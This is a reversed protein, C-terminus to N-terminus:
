ISSTPELYCPAIISFATNLLKECTTRISVRGDDYLFTTTIYADDGIGVSLPSQYRNVSRRLRVIREEGIKFSMTAVPIETNRPMYSGTTYICFGNLVLFGNNYYVSVEFTSMPSVDSFGKSLDYYENRM